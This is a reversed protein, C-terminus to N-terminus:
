SGDCLRKAVAPLASDHGVSTSPDFLKIGLPRDPGHPHMPKNTLSAAEVHQTPSCM